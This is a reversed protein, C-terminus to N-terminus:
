GQAQGTHKKLAVPFNIKECTKLFVRIQMDCLWKLAAAFLYDGLYNINAKKTRYEVIWAIADSIAQFIACSISSRFPLCKDVFYWLKGTTPHNGKMVLLWWESKAMPVHRFASSM